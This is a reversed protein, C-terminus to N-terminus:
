NLIEVRRAPMGIDISYHRVIVIIEDVFQDNFEFTTLLIVSSSSSWRKKHLEVDFIGRRTPIVQDALLLPISVPHISYSDSITLKSSRMGKLSINMNREQHGSPLRVLSKSM